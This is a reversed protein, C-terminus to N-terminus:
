TTSQELMTLNLLHPNHPVLPSHLVGTEPCELSVVCCEAKVDMISSAALARWPVVASEQFELSPWENCEINEVRVQYQHMTNLSDYKDHRNNSCFTSPIMMDLSTIWTPLLAVSSHSYLQILLCTLSSWLPLPFSLFKLQAKTPVVCLMGFMPSFGCHARALQM